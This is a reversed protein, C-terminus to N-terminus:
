VNIITDLRITSVPFDRSYKSFLSKRRLPLARNNPSISADQRGRNDESGRRSSDSSDQTSTDILLKRNSNDKLNEVLAPSTPSRDPAYRVFPTSKVLVGFNNFTLGAEDEVEEDNIGSSTRLFSSLRISADLSLGQIVSSQKKSDTRGSPKEAM